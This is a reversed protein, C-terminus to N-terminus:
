RWLGIAAIALLKYDLVFGTDLRWSSDTSSRLSVGSASCGVISLTTAVGDVRLLRSARIFARDFTVVGLVSGLGVLSWICGAVM